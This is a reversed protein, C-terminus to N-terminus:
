PIPKKRTGNIYHMLLDCIKKAKRDIDSHKSTIDFIVHKQNEKDTAEIAVEFYSKNSFLSITKSKKSYQISSISWLEIKHIKYSNLRNSFLLSEDTIKLSEKKTSGRFNQIFLAVFILSLVSPFIVIDNRGEVVLALSFCSLLLVLILYKWKEGKHLKSGDYNIILQENIWSVDLIDISMLKTKVKDLSMMAKVM